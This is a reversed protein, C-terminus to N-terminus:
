AGAEAWHRLAWDFIADAPARALLQWGGSLGGGLRVPLTLCPLGALSAPATCTLIGRRTEPTCEAKTPAPRPAAPVLLFDCEHWAAAFSGRVRAAVARAAALQEATIGAAAHFRQWIAPDYDARHPGLWARHIAHAESMVITGYADVAGDWTHRLHASLEAPAESALNAAADALADDFAATTEPWLDRARLFRGRPAAPPAGVAPALLGLLERLDDAHATFWGATDCTPSLPFADRIFATGPAGRYGYLGCFAAPVRVSGGTDTGLACPVLGAAVLAASGSSSGGALRGPAHPHPCDGYTRNEGTLGAAFEVLHTKGALAAGLERLRTILASDGPTPRLRALFASGARTPAGAVDFLDKALYPIGGLPRRAACGAALEDALEASPRSWALASQRLPAPLAALRRAFAAAAGAPGLTRWGAFPLPDPMKRPNTDM